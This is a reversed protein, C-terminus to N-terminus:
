TMGPKNMEALNSVLMLRIEFYNDSDMYHRAQGPMKRKGTAGVGCSQTM